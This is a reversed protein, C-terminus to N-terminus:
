KKMIAIVFLNGCIIIFGIVALMIKFYDKQVETLLEEKEEEVGPLPPLDEETTMEDNLSMTDM